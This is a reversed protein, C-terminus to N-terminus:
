GKKPKCFFPALVAGRAGFSSLKSPRAGCSLARTLWPDAMYMDIKGEKCLWSIQVMKSPRGTYIYSFSKIKHIENLMTEFLVIGM